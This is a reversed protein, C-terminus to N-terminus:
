VLIHLIGTLLPFLVDHQPCVGMSARCEKMSTKISSGLIQADGSTVDLLGTLM